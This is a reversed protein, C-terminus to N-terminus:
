LREQVIRFGLGNGSGTPITYSRLSVRCISEDNIWSGGRIVKSTGSAPGHPDSQVVASYQGYWDSCWEWVNGSMDFIGIENAIKSGVPHVTKGSNSYYWAVRDINSSGSYAYGKSKSGGRAAIEWEAETPLRVGKGTTSDMWQCYRVADNWTVNVIPDSDHWGWPPAQPLSSGIIACYSRYDKVTVEYKSIWFPKLTVFRVPQEDSNGSTSGMQYTGGPIASLSSVDQSYNFTVNLTVKTIGVYGALDKALATISHKGV